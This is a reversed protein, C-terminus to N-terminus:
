LAASARKIFNQELMVGVFGHWQSSCDSGQLDWFLKTV